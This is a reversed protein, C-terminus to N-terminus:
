IVDDEDEDDPGSVTAMGVFRTAVRNFFWLGGAGVLAICVISWIVGWASPGPADLFGYQVVQIVPTLPNIQVLTKLSGPVSQVSYFVPTFFMWFQMAYQVFYRMDRAKPYLTMTWLGIGVGFLLCLGLGAFGVLLTPSIRLYFHGSTIFYYILAIAAIVWYISITVFTRLIAAPPVLLLPIRLGSTLRKVTRMSVTEYLVVYHFFRFAQMSFIMFIIYPIGNPGSAHFVGGFIFGFGVITMLPRIVIWARGLIRGKYTPILSFALPWFLHRSAWAEQIRQRITPRWLALSVGEFIADDPSALEDNSPDLVPLEPTSPDRVEAGSWGTM